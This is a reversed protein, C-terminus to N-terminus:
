HHAPTTHTPSTGGGGGSGGAAVGAGVAAAGAAAGIGVTGAQVGATMAAGAAEGVVIGGANATAGAFSTALLGSSIGVVNMGTALGAPEGILFFGCGCDLGLPLPVAMEAPTIKATTSLRIGPQDLLSGLQARTMKIETGDALMMVVFPETRAEAAFSVRLGAILLIAVMVVVLPLSLCKM